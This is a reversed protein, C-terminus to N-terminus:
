SRRERLNPPPINPDDLAQRIIRAIRDAEYQVAKEKNDCEEPITLSYVGALNGSNQDVRATDLPVYRPSEPSDIKDFRVMADAVESSAADKPEFVKNVWSIISDVTRFNSSLQISRGAQTNGKQIADKVENYTVIDARRFRYISQKPDGVVFLSGPRPIVKRWDNEQLNSTTLLLIV